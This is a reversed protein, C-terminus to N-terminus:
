KTVEGKAVVDTPKPPAQRGPELSVAYAAFDDLGTRTSGVTRLDMQTHVVDFTGLPVPGNSQVGWVVYTTHAADNVRLGHTVVDVRDARAVVTAVSTGSPDAVPAITARGATLLEDVIRTQAEAIAQAQTRSESLVVNWVGLAVILAVAAAALLSPLRRRWPPVPPGPPRAGDDDYQPFGTAVPRRASSSQAPVQETQEVADRLRSRLDASPEALPLDTALLAMVEVTERVTSACRDCGALHITFVAEDEPELAHLAWGVALEDFTEHDDTM